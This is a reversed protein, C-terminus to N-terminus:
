VVGDRSKVVGLFFGKSFMTSFPSFARLWRHKRGKGFCISIFFETVNKNDAYMKLKSVDLM